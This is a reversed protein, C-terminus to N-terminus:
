ERAHAYIWMNGSGNASFFIRESTKTGQNLILQGYICPNIEPSEADSGQNIYLDAM